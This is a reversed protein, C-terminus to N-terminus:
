FARTGSSSASSRARGSRICRPWRWRSPSGASQALPSWIWRTAARVVHDDDDLVLAVGFIQMRSLGFVILIALGLATAATLTVIGGLLPGGVYLLAPGLSAVGLTFGLGAGVFGTSAHDLGVRRTLRGFLGTPKGAHLLKSDELEPLWEPTTPASRTQLCPSENSARSCSRSVLM